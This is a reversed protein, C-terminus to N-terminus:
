STHYLYLLSQYDKQYSYYNIMYNFINESYNSIISILLKLYKPKVIMNQHGFPSLMFNGNQILPNMVMSDNNSTELSNDLEVPEVPNQGSNEDVTITSTEESEQHQQITDSNQTNLANNSALKRQEFMKRINEPMERKQSM